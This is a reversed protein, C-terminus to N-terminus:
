RTSFVIDGYFATGSAGTNDTDTMIAVGGIFPPEQGFADRYDDYVNREEKVWTGAAGKGSEVVIMRVRDTYPNPVVLGKEAKSGWIYAIAGTPPYEGYFLRAAAYTARKFFGIKKPDYEFMIYIRAPYDDGEKRAVDGKEYTDMIKWRWQIIPFQRPDIRLRSVLGSSAANSIARVVVVGADSVLDYRTHRKIKKFTMPAWSEPLAGGAKASSFAGVVLDEGALSPSVMGGAWLILVVLITLLISM